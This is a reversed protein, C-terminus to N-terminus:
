CARVQWSRFLVTHLLAAGLDSLCLLLLSSQSQGYNKVRKHLNAEPGIAFPFLRVGFGKLSFDGLALRPFCLQEEFVLSKLAGDLFQSCLKFLM